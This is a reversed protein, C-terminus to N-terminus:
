TRRNPRQQQWRRLKVISWVLQAVSVVIWTAALISLWGGDDLAPAALLGGIALIAVTVVFITRPDERDLIWRWGM